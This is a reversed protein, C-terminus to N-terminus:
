IPSDVDEVTPAVAKFLEAQGEQRILPKPVHKIGARCRTYWGCFRCNWAGKDLIPESDDFEREPSTKVTSLVTKCETATLAGYDAGARAYAVLQKNSYQDVYDPPPEQNAQLYDRLKLFRRYVGRVSLHRYEQVGLDNEVQIHRADENLASGYHGDGVLRVHHEGLMMSDRGLYLLVLKINDIYQGYYDLYPIVQLLNETKPKFKGAKPYCMGAEQYKGTTKCEVPVLCERSGNLQVSNDVLWFDVRGSINM